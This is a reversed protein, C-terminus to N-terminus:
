GTKNTFWRPLVTFCYETSNLPFPVTNQACLSMATFYLTSLSSFILTYITLSQPVINRCSDAVSMKECLNIKNCLKCANNLYLLESYKCWIRTWKVPFVGFLIDGLENCSKRCLSAKNIAIEWSTAQFSLLNEWGSIIYSFLSKSQFRRCPFGRWYGPFIQRPIEMASDMFSIFLQISGSKMKLLVSQLGNFTGKWCFLYADKNTLSSFRSTIFFPPPSGTIWRVRM